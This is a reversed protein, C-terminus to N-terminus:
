VGPRMDGFHGFSTSGVVGFRLRMLVFNDDIIMQLGTTVMRKGQVLLEKVMWEDISM